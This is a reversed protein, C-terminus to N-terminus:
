KITCKGTVGKVGDYFGKLCYRLQKLRQPGYVISLFFKAIIYLLYHHRFASPIYKLRQLIIANRCDFYRRFPSYIGIEKGFFNIQKDGIMHNMCVDKSVITKYGKQSARFCFEFDVYGVFFDENLYGVDKFVHSRILSGSSIIHSVECYHNFSSLPITCFKNNIISTVPYTYSNNISKYIPGTLGVKIGNKIALTEANYLGKVFDHPLISDQDLILIHTAGHSLARKIGENQAKGIGLNDGLLILECKKNSKWKLVDDLNKSHNDIYIIGDVQNVVSNYEKTLLEINPTFTIVIAYVSISM